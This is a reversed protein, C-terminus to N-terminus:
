YRSFCILQIFLILHFNWGRSIPAKLSEPCRPQHGYVSLSSKSAELRNSDSNMADAWESAKDGRSRPETYSQEGCVYMRFGPIIFYKPESCGVGYKLNGYRGKRLRPHSFNFNSKNLRNQRYM